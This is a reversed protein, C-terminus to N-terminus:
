KKIPTLKMRCPTAALSEIEIKYDLLRQAEVCTAAYLEDADPNSPIPHREAFEQCVFNHYRAAWEFKARVGPNGRYDTLGKIINLQHAKILDFFIGGDPFVSFAEGLYNLFITGDADELLDEYQPLWRTKDYFDLQSRVIEIASPSLSICPPGGSKDQEVAQLLADGFVIDDDMYHEGFAIGGRLFFGEMSLGVQFESFISLINDLESEGYGLEPRRLPYGVVINDTFVKVTYFSDDGFLKSHERVREYANSLAHRVRRLFELGNGSKIAEKSLHSYGLIDAYCVFSPLMIPPNSHKYPNNM